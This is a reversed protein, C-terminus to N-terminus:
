CLLQGLSTRACMKLTKRLWAATVVQKLAVVIISTVFSANAQHKLSQGAVASMWIVTFRKSLSTMCSMLYM